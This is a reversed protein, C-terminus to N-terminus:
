ARLSPKILTRFCSSALYTLNFKFCVNGSLRYLSKSENKRVRLTLRYVFVFMEVRFIQRRNNAARCAVGGDVLRRSGDKPAHSPAGGEMPRCSPLSRHSSRDPSRRVAIGGVVGPVVECEAKAQEGGESGTSKRRSM